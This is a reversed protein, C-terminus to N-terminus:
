RNLDELLRDIAVRWKADTEYTGRAIQERIQMVKKSRVDPLERLLKLWRRQEADRPEGRKEQPEMCFVGSDSSRTSDFRNM